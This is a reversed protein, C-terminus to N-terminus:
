RTNYKNVIRVKDNNFSLDKKILIFITTRYQMKEATIIFYLLFLFSASMLPFYLLAINKIIAIVDKMKASNRRNSSNSGINLYEICNIDCFKDKKIPFITL